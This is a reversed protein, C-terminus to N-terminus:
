SGHSRVGTSTYSLYKTHLSPTDVPRHASRALVDLQTESACTSVLGSCFPNLPGHLLSSKGKMWCCNVILTAGAHSGRGPPSHGDM